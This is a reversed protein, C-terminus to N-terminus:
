KRSVGEELGPDVEDYELTTISDPRMLAATDCQTRGCEAQKVLKTKEVSAPGDVVRQQVLIIHCVLAM